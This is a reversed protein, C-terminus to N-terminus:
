MYGVSELLVKLRNIKLEYCDGSYKPMYKISPNLSVEGFYWTIIPPTCAVVRCKFSVSGGEEGVSSFPKRIFRPAAERHDSSILDTLLTGTALFHLIYRPTNSYSPIYM